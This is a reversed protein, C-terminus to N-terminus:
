PSELRVAEEGVVEPGLDVCLLTEVPDLVVRHPRQQQPVEGLELRGESIADLSTLSRALLRDNSGAALSCARM